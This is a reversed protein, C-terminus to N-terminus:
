FHSLTCALRGGPVVVVLGEWLGGRGSGSSDVRANLLCPTVTTAWSIFLWFSSRERVDVFAIFVATSGTLATERADVRRLASTRPLTLPHIDWPQMSEHWRLYLLMELPSGEGSRSFVLKNDKNKRRRRRKSLFFSFDYRGTIDKFNLSLLLITRSFISYKSLYLRSQQIWIHFFCVYWYFAISDIFCIRKSSFFWSFYLNRWYGRM